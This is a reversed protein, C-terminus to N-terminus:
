IIEITLTKQMKNLGEELAYKGRLYRFEKLENNSALKNYMKFVEKKFEEIDSVLTPDFSSPEEPATAKDVVRKVSTVTIEGKSVKRWILEGSINDFFGKNNFIDHYNNIIYDIHYHADSVIDVEFSGKKNSVRIRYLNSM